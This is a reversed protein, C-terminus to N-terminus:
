GLPESILDEVEEELKFHQTKLTGSKPIEDRFFVKRPHAYTAVRELAFEKVEDETLDSGEGLVVFAVPVEGKTKHPAPVVAADTIDPHEMLAEEVESPYINEGGSLIMDDTREVMWLAKDEDIKVYDGTYFWGEDDFVEENKKRCIITVM